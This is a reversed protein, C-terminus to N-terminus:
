SRSGKVLDRARLLFWWTQVFLNPVSQLLGKPYTCHSSTEHDEVIYRLDESSITKTHIVWRIVLNFWYMDDFLPEKCEMYIALSLVEIARIKPIREPLNGKAYLDIIKRARKAADDMEM